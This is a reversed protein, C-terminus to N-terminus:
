NCFYEKINEKLFAIMRTKTSKLISGEKAQFANLDYNLLRLQDIRNQLEKSTISEM